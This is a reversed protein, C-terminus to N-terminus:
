FFCGVVMFFPAIIGSMKEYHVLHTKHENDAVPLFIFVHEAKVLIGNNIGWAFKADNNSIVIPNAPVKQPGNVRGFDLYLSLKPKTQLNNLDGNLVSIKPIVTNWSPWKDFELFKMRVEEPKADIIIETFVSFKGKVQDKYNIM